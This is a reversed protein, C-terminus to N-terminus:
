EYYNPNLALARRYAEIAETARGLSSLSAGIGNWALSDNADLEAARRGAAIAEEYQGAAHLMIALASHFPASGPERGPAHRTLALVHLATANTPDIEIVRRLAAECEAHRKAQHHENAARVLETLEARTAADPRAGAPRAALRALVARVREAVGDWDGAREQRFLRRAPYWRSDGRG